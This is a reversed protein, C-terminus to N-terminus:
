TALIFDELDNKIQRFLMHRISSHQAELVLLLLMARVLVSAETTSMTELESISDASAVETESVTGSKQAKDLESITASFKVLNEGSGKYHYKIDGIADKGTQQLVMTQNQLAVFRM